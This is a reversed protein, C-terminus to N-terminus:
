SDDGRVPLPTLPVLPVAFVQSAALSFGSGWKYVSASYIKRALGMLFFDILGDRESDGGATLGLHGPTSSRFVVDEGIPSVSDLASDAFVVIRRTERHAHRLENRCVRLADTLQQSSSRTERVADGLRIHLAVFEGATLRNESLFRDMSLAVELGPRVGSMKLFDRAAGDLPLAPRKNTFVRRSTAFDRSTSGHFLYSVGADEGTSTGIRASQGQPGLHLWRAASFNSWDIAALRGQRRAEQFVFAAGLIADGWGHFTQRAVKEPSNDIVQVLPGRRKSRRSVAAAAEIIEGRYVGGIISHGLSTYHSLTPEDVFLESDNWSELLGSPNLVTVGIESLFTEISSALEFRKGESRTSFHTVFIVPRRGLASIIRELDSRIEAWEMARVRVGRLLDPDVVNRQKAEVTAFRDHIEHHFFWEDNQYALASALEVVFVDTRLFSVFALWRPLIRKGLQGNRFALDPPRRGFPRSCYNVAQLIEGSFHPYTIGDRIPTVPFYHSVSDQRCSGYVTVVPARRVLVACTQLFYRLFPRTRALGMTLEYVRVVRAKVLQRVSDALAKTTRLRSVM